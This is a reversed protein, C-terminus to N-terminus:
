KESTAKLAITLVAIAAPTVGPIRSAQGLTDPQFRSLKERVEATIGTISRYEFGTPIRVSEMRAM